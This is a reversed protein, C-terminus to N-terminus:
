DDPEEIHRAEVDHVESSDTTQEDRRARRWHDQCASYALRFLWTKFASEARFTHAHRLVRLMTDQALDDALDARRTLRYCLAHVRAHHRAFLVGLADADGERVEAM